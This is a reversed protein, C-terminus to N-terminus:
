GRRGAPSRFPNFPRREAAPQTVDSMPVGKGTGPFKENFVEDAAAVAAKIQEESATAFTSAIVEGTKEQGAAGYRSKVHAQSDAIYALGLGILREQEPSLKLEGPPPAGKEIDPPM